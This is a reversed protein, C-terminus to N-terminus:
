GIYAVRVLAQHYTRAAVVSLESHGTDALKDCAVSPREPTTTMRLVAPYIHGAGESTRTIRIQTVRVVNMM